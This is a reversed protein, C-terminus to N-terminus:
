ATTSQSEFGQVILARTAADISKVQSELLTLAEQTFTLDPTGLKQLWLLYCAWAKVPGGTHKSVGVIMQFLWTELALDTVARLAQRFALGQAAAQNFAEILKASTVSAPKVIQKDPSPAAPKHKSPSTQAANAASKSSKSNSLRDEDTQKRLFAPIEFDDVGGLALADVQHAARTRNTRWVSPASFNADVRQSQLVVIPQQTRSTEGWGAALMSRVKHLAPMGDTKDSEAREIVLLLNTEDTVLQYREAAKQAQAPKTFTSIEHAAVLRAVLDDERLALEPQFASLGSIELAPATDCSVPLRMFLHVTEDPALRRPLPSMWLAQAELAVKAQTPVAQRIRTLLRKISETMSEQPTAFECAGGTSEAMERLLSDAPANGVGLAYIRHGSRKAEDVIRQADWVEGDTIILVDADEAHRAVGMHVAFTDQLADAMETGGLVADTDNIAGLLAHVNNATGDVAGLVRQPRDGFRTYCVQDQPSLQAALPRLAARAQEISQGAMSGSCDVLIKLRLPAPTASPLAPCYSAILAQHGKGSLSDPGAIAFSRGELGELLLVFDRDLWADAQLAVTVEEQGNDQKRQQMVAHTPSGIRAQALTGVLTIAVGFRHEALFDPEAAQDLQLRGQKVADGYRPAITTPVVLRIRGQEFNLLQAYTVEIVAEEGPKLSGLSASFVGGSAKEVMIPADGKEVAEEYRERAERRAMVQGTMRKGGMTATLGLLVAGWALPFTYTVELNQDKDNRFVQRLTMSMLLGELRGHAHVSRLVVNDGQASTLTPCENKM